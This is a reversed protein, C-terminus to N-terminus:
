RRWRTSSPGPRARWCRPTPAPSSAPSSPKWASPPFSSRRSRIAHDRPRSAAGGRGVGRRAAGARPPHHRRVGRRARRAHGAAPAHGAAAAAAHRRPAPARAAAGMGGIRGEDVGGRPRQRAGGAGARGRELARARPERAPAFDVGLVNGASRNASRLRLNEDFALVGASLNALISEFYAKAQALEAEHREAAARADALQLTMSNFSQTLM